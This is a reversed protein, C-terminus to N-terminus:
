RRRPPFFPEVRVCRRVRCAPEDATPVTAPKAEEDYACFADNRVFRGYLPLNAVRKSTWRLIASGDKRVSNQVDACSMRTTQYRSEAPAQTALTLFAAFALIFACQTRM